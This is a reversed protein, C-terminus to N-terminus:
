GVRCASVVFPLRAVYIEYYVQMRQLRRTNRAYKSVARASLLSNIRHVTMAVKRAEKLAASIIGVNPNIEHGAYRTQRLQRLKRQSIM